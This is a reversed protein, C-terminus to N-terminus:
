GVITDEEEEEVEEINDSDDDDDHDIGESEETEIEMDFDEDEEDVESLDEDSDDEDSDDEDSDYDSDTEDDTPEYSASNRRREEAAEVWTKFDFNKTPDVTSYEHSLLELAKPRAEPDVVFCKDLFDRALPNTVTDPIPPTKGSGLLFIVSGPVKHWPPLGTLMELVLCGTSRIIDCKLQLVIKFFIIYHEGFTWKPV